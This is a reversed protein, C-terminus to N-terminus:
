VRRRQAEATFGSQEIFRFLSEAFAVALENDSHICITEVPMPIIKGSITEVKKETIMMKIQEFVLNNDHIVAKPESRPILLGNEQYRRDAFGEALVQLGLKKAEDYLPTFPMAYFFLQDDIDKTAQAIAKAVKADKCAMNYLAGHPKVHHLNTKLVKTVGLLAGIQYVCIDYVEQASLDMNRRGFGQLDPFSPHAGITVKNEICKQATKLMISSDGAHFGCAINASSIYKMLLLDKENKYSGFGEGLDCNIDITNM